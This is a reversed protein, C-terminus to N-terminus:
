LSELMSQPNSMNVDNFKGQLDKLMKLQENYDETMM